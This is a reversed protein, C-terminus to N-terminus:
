VERVAGVHRGRGRIGARERRGRHRERGDKHLIVMTRMRRSRVEDTEVTQSARYRGASTPRLAAHPGYFPLIARKHLLKPTDPPSQSLAIHCWSTLPVRESDLRDMLGSM